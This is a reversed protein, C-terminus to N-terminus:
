LEGQLAAWIKPASLPMDLHTIGAPALADLVANVMAPTSGITAAEGIGKAGMPNLPTTTVTRHLDFMPFSDAHPLAYEMM